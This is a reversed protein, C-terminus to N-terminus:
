IHRVKLYAMMDWFIHEYKNSPYAGGFIFIYQLKRWFSCNRMNEIIYKEVVVRSM